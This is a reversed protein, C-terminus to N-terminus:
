DTISDEASPTGSVYLKAVADHFLLKAVPSTIAAVLAFVLLNQNPIVTKREPNYEIAAVADLKPLHTQILATYVNHYPEGTANEVPVDEEISVIERALQRVSVVVDGKQPLTKTTNEAAEVSTPTIM